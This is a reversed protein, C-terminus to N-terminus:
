VVDESDMMEMFGRVIFFLTGLELIVLIAVLWVKPYEALAIIVGCLLLIPIGMGYILRFDAGILREIFVDVTRYLSRHPRPPASETAM